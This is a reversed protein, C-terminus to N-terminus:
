IIAIVLSKRLIQVPKILLWIMWVLNEMEPRSAGPNSGLPPRVCSHCSHETCYSYALKYNIHLPENMGRLLALLTGFFVHLKVAWNKKNFDLKVYSRTAYRNWKCAETGSSKVSKKFLTIKLAARDCVKLSQTV